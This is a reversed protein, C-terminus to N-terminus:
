DDVNLAFSHTLTIELPTIVSEADIARSLEKSVIRDSKPSRKSRELDIEQKLIQLRLPTPWISFCMCCKQEALLSLIICFCSLAFFFVISIRPISGRVERMSLSREVM